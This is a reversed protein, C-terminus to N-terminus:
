SLAAEAEAWNAADQGTPRGKAVWIEYAKAAIAEHTPTMHKTKSASAAPKAMEVVVPKDPTPLTKRSGTSKPKPKSASKSKPKSSKSKSM